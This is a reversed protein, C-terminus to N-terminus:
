RLVARHPGQKRGSQMLRMLLPHHLWSFHKHAIPAFALQPRADGSDRRDCFIGALGHRRDVDLFHDCRKPCCREVIRVRDPDIVLPQQCLERNKGCTTPADPESNFSHCRACVGLSWSISAPMGAIMLSYQLWGPPTPSRM